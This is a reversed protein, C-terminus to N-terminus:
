FLYSTEYEESLVSISGSYKTDAGGLPWTHCLPRKRTPGPAPGSGVCALCKWIIGLVGDANGENPAGRAGPLLGGFDPLLRHSHRRLGFSIELYRSVSPFIGAASLVASRLAVWYSYLHMGINIQGEPLSIEWYLLPSFLANHHSPYPEWLM